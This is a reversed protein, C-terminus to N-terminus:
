MQPPPQGGPAAQMAQAQAQAQAKEAMRNMVAEANPYKLNKLVEEGDIIGRDFLNFSQQEIRSKEFPLGSGSIVRVDFEGKVEFQKEESEFPTGNEDFNVTRIKAINQIEGTPQGMEDTVPVKDVHFKFYKMSQDDGTVRFIRPADYFQFVRSAYMKGMDVLFADLNRSKQRIRTQQAEQLATIAAAATVGEPRQGRSVDNSGSV